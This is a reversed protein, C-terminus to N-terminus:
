VVSSQPYDNKSKHHHCRTRSWRKFGAKQAARSFLGRANNAQVSFLKPSTENEAIPLGESLVEASYPKGHLKSFLVLSDLVSSSIHKRFKQM